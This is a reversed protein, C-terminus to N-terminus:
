NAPKGAPIFPGSKIKTSDEETDKDRKRPETCFSSQGSSFRFRRGRQNGLDCKVVWKLRRRQGKYAKKWGEVKEAGTLKDVEVVTM